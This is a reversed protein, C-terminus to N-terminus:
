CSGAAEEPTLAQRAAEAIHRAHRDHTISRGRSMGILGDIRANWNCISGQMIREIRKRAYAESGHRRVKAMFVLRSIGEIAVVVTMSIAMTRNLAPSFWITGDADVFAWLGMALGLLAVTQGFNTPSAHLDLMEKLSLAQVIGLMVFAATVIIGYQMTQSIPQLSAIMVFLLSTVLATVPHVALAIINRFGM